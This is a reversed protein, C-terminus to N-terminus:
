AGCAKLLNGILNQFGRPQVLRSDLDHQLDHQGHAPRGHDCDGHEGKDGVPGGVEPRQNIVTSSATRGNVIAMSRSLTTSCPSNQFLM